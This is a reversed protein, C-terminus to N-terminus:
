RWRGGRCVIRWEAGRAVKGHGGDQHAGMESHLLRASAKGHRASNDGGDAGDRVSACERVRVRVSAARVFVACPKAVM